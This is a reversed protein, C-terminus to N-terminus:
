HNHSETNEHTLPQTETVTPPFPNLELESITILVGPQSQCGGTYLKKLREDAIQSDDSYVIGTLADEVARALKLVDPKSTHHSPASDKLEASHKGSRFHAKPRPMYFTLGLHVPGELLPDGCWVRKAEWAVTTKWDKSGACADTVVARIFQKNPGKGRYIPFARKSGAPKPVGLVFFTLRPKM